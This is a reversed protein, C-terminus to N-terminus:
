PRQKGFNLYFLETDQQAIESARFCIPQNLKHKVTIAIKLIFACENTGIRVSCVDNDQLYHPALTIVQAMKREQTERETRKKEGERRGCM